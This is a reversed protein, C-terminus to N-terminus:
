AGRHELDLIWRQQMLGLGFDDPEEGSLVFGKREYLPGAGTTVLEVRYALDSRGCHDLFLRAENDERGSCAPGLAALVILALALSTGTTRM